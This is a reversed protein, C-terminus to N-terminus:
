KLNLSDLKVLEHAFHELYFESLTDYHQVKNVNINKKFNQIHEQAEKSLNPDINTDLISNIIRKEISVEKM